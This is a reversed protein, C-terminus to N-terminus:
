FDRTKDPHGQDVGGSAILQKLTLTGLSQRFASEYRDLIRNVPHESPLCDVPLLTDAEAMRVVDIIDMLKITDPDRGPIYSLQSDGTRALYGRLELSNLIDQVDKRPM